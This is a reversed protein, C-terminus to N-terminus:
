INKNWKGVVCTIILCHRVESVTTAEVKSDDESNVPHGCAYTALLIVLGFKSM